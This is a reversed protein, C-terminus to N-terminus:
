VLISVTWKTQVDNITEADPLNMKEGYLQAPFCEVMNWGFGTLKIVELCRDKLEQYWDPQIRFPRTVGTHTEHHVITKRTFERDHIVQELLGRTQGKQGATATGLWTRMKNEKRSLFCFLIFFFHWRCMLYNGRGNGDRSIFRTNAEMNSIRWFIYSKCYWYCDKWNWNRSCGLTHSAHLNMM